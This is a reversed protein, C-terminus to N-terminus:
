SKSATVAQLSSRSSEQQSKMGRQTKTRPIKPIKLHVREYEYTWSQAAEAEKYKGMYGSYRLMGVPSQPPLSRAPTTVM